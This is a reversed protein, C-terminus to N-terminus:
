HIAYAIRMWLVHPLSMKLHRSLCMALVGCARQASVAM